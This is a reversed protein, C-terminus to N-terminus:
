HAPKRNPKSGIAEKARLVEGLRHQDSSKQGETSGPMGENSATLMQRADQEWTDLAREKEAASLTPDEAIDRPSAYHEAPHELKETRSKPDTM